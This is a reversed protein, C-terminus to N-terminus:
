RGGGAVAAATAAVFRDAERRRDYRDLVFQRGRAGMDRREGPNAGLRTIADAIGQADGPPVFVGGDCSELIARAEGDVSLVVPRGAAMADFLKSPVFMEFVQNAALPVLCVDAAALAAACADLPAEPLFRVNDLQRARAGAVLAAKMPGEGM